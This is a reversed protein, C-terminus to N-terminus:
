DRGLEEREYHAVAEIEDDSLQDGWAPMGNRGNTITDIQEDLTLSEEVAGNGLPLGQGGEGDPGHCRACNSEYIAQGDPAGGAGETSDDGGCAALPIALLAVLVVLLPRLRHRM